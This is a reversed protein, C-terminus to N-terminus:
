ITKYPDMGNEYEKKYKLLQNNLWRDIEDLNQQNLGVSEKSQIPSLHIVDSKRYEKVSCEGRLLSEEENDNVAIAEVKYEFIPRDFVGLEPSTGFSGTYQINVLERDKNRQRFWNISYEIMM